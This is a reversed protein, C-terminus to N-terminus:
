SDREARRIMLVNYPEIRAYSAEDSLARLMPIGWGGLRDDDPDRDDADLPNFAVGDDKFHLIINREEDVEMAVEIVKPSGHSISNVLMEEALLLLDHVLDASFGATRLNNELVSQIRSVEDLHTSLSWNSKM